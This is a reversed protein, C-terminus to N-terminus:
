KEKINNLFKNWIEKIDQSAKGKSYEIVNLKNRQAYTIDKDYSINGLHLAGKESAKEIIKDCCESNIEYKNVVLYTPIMFKNALDIVRLADHEGSLTPETVIIVYDVGTMSAIVPCGIGPPGDIIVYDNKNELALNRAITRVESVLKGSNEAGIALKAHALLGFRTKSVYSHGALNEDFKIANVPCNWVCVGCGECSHEIVEFKNNDNKKIANFKCLNKCKGCSICKDEIIEATRGSIFENTKINKPEFIIHMDAADVDCDAFLANDVLSALSSTFSTKGTGGKGSIVLIQKM